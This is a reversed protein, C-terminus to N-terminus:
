SLFDTNNWLRIVPVDREYGLISLSGTDLALSRGDGAYLGVWRAALVRSFHGSSFLAVKGSFQRVWEIVNDARVSVEQISEGGPSGDNFVTWGPITKRIEPTTMGELDGYNWELLDDWIQAEDEYGAIECTTKARILPSTFVRDFEIGKLRDRLKEAQVIGNETLPIDSFSTHQGSLTWATEGHRCLYVQLSPYGKEM